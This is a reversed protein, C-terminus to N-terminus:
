IDTLIGYAAFSSIKVEPSWHDLATLACPIVLSCLKGLHPYDVQTVFWRFQYAAVIAYAVPVRASAASIEDGDDGTDISSEKITGKLEPLLEPMLEVVLKREDMVSSFDVGLECIRKSKRADSDCSFAKSFEGFAEKASVSLEKPIWSILDTTAGEASVLAACCLCFDKIERQIEEESIQPSISSSKEDPLLSELISKVPVNVGEPPNYQAKSLSGRIPESLRFHLSTHSKGLNESQNLYGSSSFGDRKENQWGYNQGDRGMDGSNSFKGRKLQSLHPPPPPPPPLPHLLPQPALVGKADKHDMASGGQLPESGTNALPPPNLHLGGPVRGYDGQFFAVRGQSDSPNNFSDGIAQGGPPPEFPVGAVGMNWPRPYSDPYSVPVAPGPPFGLLSGQEGGELALDPRAVKYHSNYFPQAGETPFPPYSFPPPPTPGQNANVPVVFNPPQHSHLPPYDPFPSESLIGQQKDPFQDYDRRYHLASQMDFSQQHQYHFRNHPGPRDFGQPPNSDPQPESAHNQMRGYFPPPKPQIIPNLPSQERPQQRPAKDERDNFQSNSSPSFVPRPPAHATSETGSSQKALLDTSSPRIMNLAESENGDERETNPQLLDAHSEHIHSEFETRKLFSKLCHPAACIFIGEMMKITQIKQIREDCLYCSSDSRACDLCFAHECPSLRGYIAIPFDCRVCFHVREGLQRRSRRGVTKVLSAATASGLSKAVPLDALVLHDPCAVTVTEAPLPKTGGGGESSSGRSLRIQLM